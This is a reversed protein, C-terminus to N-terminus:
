ANSMSKQMKKQPKKIALLHEFVADQAEPSHHRKHFRLLGAEFLADDMDEEDVCRDLQGM